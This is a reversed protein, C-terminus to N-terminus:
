PSHQHEFYLSKAVKRVVPCCHINPTAALHTRLECLTQPHDCRNPECLESPTAHATLEINVHPKTRRRISHRRSNSQIIRGM